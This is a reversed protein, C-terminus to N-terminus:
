RRPATARYALAWLRTRRLYAQEAERGSLGYAGEYSQYSPVLSSGRAGRPGPRRAPEVQTGEHWENYSTITVRDAGSALAAQWMVDYTRGGRRPLVRPDGRAWRADYGPGVSPACLLGAAHAKACLRRFSAPRYRLLDYTYVGAFGAAVARAVNGTQALVEMGTERAAANLRAWGGEDILGDFPRFVYVRRIGLDALHALDSAVVEETRLWREYPELQISVELGQARAAQMVAPLRRDEPSGWGWWSSVVETVGAAAIEGMQAALVGPDSSSYLGRSPYYGAAIDAPPAHGNQAWHEYSGDRDPTGYWPYYFIAVDRHAPSPGAAVLAPVLLALAALSVAFLM